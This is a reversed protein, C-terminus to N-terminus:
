GAGPEDGTPYDHPDRKPVSKDQEDKRLLEVAWEPPAPPPTDRPADVPAFMQGTLISSLGHALLQLSQDSQGTTRRILACDSKGDLGPTWAMCRERVCSVGAVFVPRMGNAACSPCLRTGHEGGFVKGEGKCDPCTEMEIAANPLSFPCLLNM